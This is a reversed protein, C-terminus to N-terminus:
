VFFMFKVCLIMLRACKWNRRPSIGASSIYAGCFKRGTRSKGPFNKPINYIRQGVKRRLSLKAYSM